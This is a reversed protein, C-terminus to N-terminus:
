VECQSSELFYDSEQKDGSNNLDVSSEPQTYIASDSNYLTSYIAINHVEDESSLVKFASEEFDAQSFWLQDDEDSDTSHAVHSGSQQSINRQPHLVCTTYHKDHCNAKAIHSVPSEPSHMKRM